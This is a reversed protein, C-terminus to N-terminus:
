KKREKLGIRILSIQDSNSLHGQSLTELREPLNELKMNVDDVWNWIATACFLFLLFSLGCGIGAMLILFTTM